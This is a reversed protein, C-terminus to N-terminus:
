DAGYIFGLVPKKKCSIGYMARPYDSTNVPSSFRNFPLLFASRIYNSCCVTEEQEREEDGACGSIMNLAFKRCCLEATTDPQEFSVSIWNNMEKLPLMDICQWQKELKLKQIVLSHCNDAVGRLRQKEIAYADTSVPLINMGILGNELGNDIMFRPLDFNEHNFYIVTDRGIHQNSAEFILFVVPNAQQRFNEPGVYEKLV